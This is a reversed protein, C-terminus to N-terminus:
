ASSANLTRLDICRAGLLEYEQPNCSVVIVQLGRSAALDLMRQLMAIRSPDSNTFADDFVIPLSGDFSAALIEAMALRLAAAVQERTGGSLEHFSFRHGGAGPRTISLDHVGQQDDFALSVTTGQGFMVCLYEEIRQRLPAAIRDARERALTAFREHLRQIAAAERAAAVQEHEASSVEAQATALQTHLDIGGAHELTAQAAAKTERADRIAQDAQSIVREYRARDADLSPRDLAALQQESAALVAAATKEAQRAAVIAAARAAADGHHQEEVEQLLTAKELSRRREALAQEAAKAAATAEALRRDAEAQDAQQALLQEELQECAAAVPAEAAALDDITSPLPDSSGTTSLRSQLLAVKQEAATLTQRAARQRNTVAEHTEGSLRMDHELQQKQIKLELAQRQRLRERATALDTVGLAALQATLSKEAAAVADRAEALSQGGGPTIVIRTVGDILLSTEDTITHSGGASLPEGSLSLSHGSELVDIRTAILEIKAQALQRQEDLAALTAIAADDIPPLSELDDTLTAITSSIGQVTALLDTTQELERTAQLLSRQAALLDRRTTEASLALRTAAVASAATAVAATCAEQQAKHQAAAREDPAIQRNLEAREAARAHIGTDREVLTAVNNAAAEAAERQQSVVEALRDAEALQQRVPALQTTATAQLRTSQAITEEAQALRDLAERSATFRESATAAQERAKELRQEALALRSGKKPTSRQGFIAEARGRFLSKVADDLSSDVVGLGDQQRLQAALQEATTGAAKEGPEDQATGQWVWLHAWQRNFVEAQQGRVESVGLLAQLAEEAADNEHRQGTSSTLVASSGSAGRFKKQLTYRTDGISFELTVEPDGGSRSQMRELLGAAKSKYRYFLCRHIAEILTSKGAENPGTILTHADDFSVELQPHRRYNKLTAKHLKM